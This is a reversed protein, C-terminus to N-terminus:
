KYFKNMSHIFSNFSYLKLCKMYSKEAFSTRLQTDTLISIIANINEKLNKPDVVLGNYNHEISEPLGGINSVICTTHNAMAEIVGIGQTEMLSPQYYITARKLFHQSDNVKGWFKIAPNNNTVSSFHNFLSGSGLWYFKVDSKIKTVAEAVELWVYPNKYMEVHGMTLIIADSKQSESFANLSYYNQPLSNYVVNVFEKKHDKIKWNEIISDRNSNSVTIIRKKSNLRFDCTLKTVYNKTEYPYTHLIYNIKIFPLWFFVLHSEPDISSITLTSCRYKIFFFSIITLSKIVSVIEKLSYLFDKRRLNVCDKINPLFIFTLLQHPDIKKLNDVSEKNYLLFVINNEGFYDILLKLYANSGGFELVKTIILQKRVLAM